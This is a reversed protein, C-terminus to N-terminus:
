HGLRRRISGRNMVACRIFQIWNRQDLFTLRACEGLSYAFFYFEFIFLVVIQSPLFDHEFCGATYIANEIWRQCFQTNTRGTQRSDPLKIRTYREDIRIDKMSRLSMKRRSIWLNKGNGTFSAIIKHIKNIKATAMGACGVYSWMDYIIIVNFGIWDLRLQVFVSRFRSELADHMSSRVSALCLNKFFRQEKNCFSYFCCFLLLFGHRPKATTFRTCAFYHYNCIEHITKIRCYECQANGSFHTAKCQPPLLVSM